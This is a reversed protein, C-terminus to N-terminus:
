GGTRYFGNRKLIPGLLKNAEEYYEEEVFMNIKQNAIFGEIANQWRPTKIDILDAFFFVEIKKNFKDELAHRLQNRVQILQYEYQKGGTSSSDQLSQNELNLKNIESALHTKLYGYNESCSVKFNNITNRFELLSDRNLGTKNILKGEFSTCVALVNNTFKSLEDFVNSFKKKLSPDLAELGSNLRSAQNKFARIYSSLKDFDSNINAEIRAISDKIKDRSATLDKNMQYTSSQVKSAILSEKKTTFEKIENDINKLEENIERIRLENAQIDRQLNMINNLIVQYNVRKIIYSSLALDSKRAQVEKYANHIKELRSVKTEMSSAEIELRKYQQINARMSEVNIEQPVDCVYETIFQEINTIPTFSVAKKFLSFYKDKISGFKDKLLVQYQANTDCFTYEAASYNQALYEALEKQSLPTNLSCFDNSPFGDKIYFFKHTETGDDYVDFVIGVTFFSAVVDDYFELAIYSTFRGNRLYRFSGEGDDGVEGKLYGKLTRGAKDNAAKNFMRGSTDGLLVVQMADILTSKGSANEGTLFNIKDFEVKVNYFYHWNILRLRKLIKM